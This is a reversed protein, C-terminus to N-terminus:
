LKSQRREALKYQHFGLLALAALLLIFGAYQRKANTSPAINKAAASMSVCNALDSEDCNLGSVAAQEVMQGNFRFENLGPPLNNLYFKGNAASIKYSKGVAPVVELETMEAQPPRFEVLDGYRYNHLKLGSRGARVQEAMNWFLVAWYPSKALNSKEANLNLYFDTNREASKDVSFIKSKGRRVLVSGPLDLDPNAALVMDKLDLGRCEVAGAKVSVPELTVKASDAPYQPWFLRSGAASTSEPEATITFEASENGAAPVYDPNGALVRQLDAAAATSFTGAIRWTVPKINEPLLIVQNDYAVADHFGNPVVAFKLPLYQENEAINLVIKRRESRALTIRQEHTPADQLTSTYRLTIDKQGASFNMIELLVTKDQRRANVLGVNELAAGLARWGVDEALDAPSQQDTIVLFESQRYNERAWALAGLLDSNGERCLWLQDIESMKDADQLLQAKGGALVTILRRGPYRQQIDNLMQLGQERPSVGNEARATMSFSDDLIVCLPPFESSHMFFPTAAALALLLLILLEVYFCWPPRLLIFRRGSQPLEEPMDWLFLASVLENKAQRWWFYIVLLGIIAAMSWLYYGHEFFLTMATGRM